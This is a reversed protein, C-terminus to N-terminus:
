SNRDSVLKGDLEASYEDGTLEPAEFGKMEHRLGRNCGLEVPHQSPGRLRKDNRWRRLQLVLIALLLIAVVGVGVGIGVVAATPLGSSSPTNQVSSSSAPPAPAPTSLSILSTPSTAAVSTTAGVPSVSVVASTTALTTPASGGTAVTATMTPLVTSPDAGLTAPDGLVLSAGIEYGVRRASYLGANYEVSGDSIM